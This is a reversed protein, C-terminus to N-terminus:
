NIYPTSESGVYNKRETPEGGILGSQKMVHKQKTDAGENPV